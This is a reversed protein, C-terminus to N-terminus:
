TPPTPQPRNYVLLAILVLVVGALFRYSPLLGFFLASIVGGVVIAISTAFGKLITDAYKVVTAVLLGGFAQDCIVLFTYRSYGGFFGNRVLQERDNLHVSLFALVIGFSSLQINRIWISSSNDKLLKELYVGALGSLFTVM